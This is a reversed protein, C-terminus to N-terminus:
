IRDKAADKDKGFPEGHKNVLSMMKDLSLKLIKVETLAKIDVYMQDRLFVARHNIVSGPGLKEIVFLNGEFETSLEVKGEEIFYISDLISDRRLIVSDKEFLAKECSWILELVIDTPAKDLYDVSKMM